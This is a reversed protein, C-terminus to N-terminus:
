AFGALTELCLLLIPEYCNLNAALAAGQQVMLLLLLLFM